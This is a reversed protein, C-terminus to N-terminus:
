ANKAAVKSFEQKSVVFCCLMAYLLASALRRSSSRERLGEDATVVLSVELPKVVGELYLPLKMFLWEWDAFSM